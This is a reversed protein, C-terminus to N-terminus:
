KFIPKGVHDDRVEVWAVFKGYWNKAKNYDLHNSLNKVADSMSYQLECHHWM